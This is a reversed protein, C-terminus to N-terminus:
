RFETFTSDAVSIISHTQAISHRYNSTLLWLERCTLLGSDIRHNRTRTGDADSITKGEGARKECGQGAPPAAEFSQFSTGPVVKLGLLRLANMFCAVM